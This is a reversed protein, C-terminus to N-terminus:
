FEAKWAIWAEWAVTTGSGDKELEPLKFRPPIKLSIPDLGWAEREPRAKGMLGKGLRSLSTSRLSGGLTFVVPVPCPRPVAKCSDRSLVLALYM